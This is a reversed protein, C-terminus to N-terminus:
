APSPPGRPGRGCRSSRRHGPRRGSAPTPASSSPSSRTPSPPRATPSGSSTSPSRSARVQPHRRRRPQGRGHRRRPRHRDRDVAAARRRRPRGRPSRRGRRRARGGPGSRGRGGPDLLVIGLLRLGRRAPHRRRGGGRVHRDARPRRGRGRDAAAPRAARGRGLLELGAVIRGAQAFLARHRNYVTHKLVRRFADGLTVPSSLKAVAAAVLVAALFLGSGLGFDSM